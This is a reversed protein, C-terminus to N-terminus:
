VITLTTGDPITLTAGNNITIPGAWMANVGAMLVMDSTVNTPNYYIFASVPGTITTSGLSATATLSLSVKRTGAVWSVASNSNSSAYITTRALIGGTTWTGLGTEWGGLLRGAVDVDEAHYSFTDGTACVSTATRFGITAGSLTYAGVGTTTSTEQVRDAVIRGM